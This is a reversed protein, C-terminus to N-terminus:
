WVAFWCSCIHYSSSWAQVLKSFAPELVSSLKMKIIDRLILSEIPICVAIPYAPWPLVHQIDKKKTKVKKNLITGTIIILVFCFLLFFMNCHAACLLTPSAWQHWHDWPNMVFIESSRQAFALIFKLKSM